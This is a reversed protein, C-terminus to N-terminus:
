KLLRLGTPTQGIRSLRSVQRRIWEYIPNRPGSRSDPGTAVSEALGAAMGDVLAAIMRGADRIRLQFTSTCTEGQWFSIVAIGMSPHTSVSMRRQPTRPDTFWVREEVLVRRVVAM